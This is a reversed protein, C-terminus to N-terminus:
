QSAPFGILVETGEGKISNFMIRGQMMEIIGFTVMLGLGTGKIKTSFYPEGLRNLGDPDMGEGNDKIEIIVEDQFRFARVIIIGEVHIAEISNKIINIIAQKFKASNGQIHLNSDLELEIKGGQLNALPVIIGEIHKLESAVDLIAVGELQPKAFTLFDTIINAARDLELIALHMYEREKIDTKEAFLQLFGRTVQLPNRVEHAISAALESIIEMKESRQLQYSFKELKSANNKMQKHYNALNRNLLLILSCIFCISGWRWLFTNQADFSYFRILDALGTLAFIFFGSSFIIADVNKKIARHIAVICLVLFVIIMSIGFLSVSMYYNLADFQYSALINAIMLLICFLSYSVQFKRLKTIISFYSPGFILEFFILLAPISVLLGVDFIIEFIAGYEEFFIFVYPPATIFLLGMTLIVISLSISLWIQKKALFLSSLLIILAILTYASGLMISGLDTKAYIFLLEKYNGVQVERDIGLSHNSKNLNEVWIYISKGSDEADMSLLIRNEDFLYNRESKFVVQDYFYIYINQAYIDSIYLGLNNFQLVPLTIKIWASSVGQPPAPISKLSDVHIWDVSSSSKVDEYDVSDKGEEIWMIQWETIVNSRDEDLGYTHYPLLVCMFLVILITTRFYNSRCGKM